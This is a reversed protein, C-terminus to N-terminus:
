KQWLNEKGFIESIKGIANGLGSSQQGNNQVPSGQNMSYNLSSAHNQQGQAQNKALEALAFWWM